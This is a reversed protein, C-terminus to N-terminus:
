DETTTTTTTTTTTESTNRRSPAGHKLREELGLLWVACNRVYRETGATKAWRDNFLKTFGCDVLVRGKGPPEYCFFCPKNDTSQGIVTMQPLVKDPYCITIGEYLSVIGTTILHRAFHGSKPPESTADIAQPKLVKDGQNDGILKVGPILKDLLLNAEHFYPSNDAWIFIGKGSEHFKVLM